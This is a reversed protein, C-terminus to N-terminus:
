HGTSDIGSQETADPLGAWRYEMRVVSKDAWYLTRRDDDTEELVRDPDFQYYGTVHGSHCQGRTGYEWSDSCFVGGDDCPPHTPGDAGELVGVLRTWVDVSVSKSIKPIGDMERWDTTRVLLAIWEPIEVAETRSEIHPAQVENGYLTFGAQERRALWRDAAPLASLDPPGGTDHGELRRQTCKAQRFDESSLELGAGDLLDRYPIWRHGAGHRHLQEAVATRPDSGHEIEWDPPSATAYSGAYVGIHSGADAHPCNTDFSIEGPVATVVMPFRAAQFSERKTTGPDFDGLPVDVVTTGDHAYGRFRVDEYHTYFTERRPTEWDWNDPGRHLVRLEGRFSSDTAQFDRISVRLLDDYVNVSSACVGCGALAASGAGSVSALFTRRNVDEM